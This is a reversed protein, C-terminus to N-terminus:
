AGNINARKPMGKSERLPPVNQKLSSVRSPAFRQGAVKRLASRLEVTRTTCWLSTEIGFLRRAVTIEPAKMSAGRVLPAGELEALTDHAALPNIGVSRQRKEM